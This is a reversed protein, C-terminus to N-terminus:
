LTDTRPEAVLQAERVRDSSGNHSRQALSQPKSVRLERVTYQPKKNVNLHLRGVYEGIMGLSLLQLGGLVLVAVITSAYGPIDIHSTFRQLLYFAGVGFGTLAAMFGTGSAVQLPLVSFNTVLNLALTVLKRISYGSRGSGRAQHEVEVEGIRQTNWALLGDIYTFNLAYPLISEVLERRIIRFSSVTVPTSFLMQFFRNVLRSCLNRGVAHEKSRYRGYVVDLKRAEISQLLKGIEEPPNQLDDDLTVIYRGQSHRFGCMLANHQGFNRMLQLATIVDSNAAQLRQLVHWSDDPSGDEVFVLEYTRGTEDLAARLREVLAPLTDASRYVPVVVSLDPEQSGQVVPEILTM